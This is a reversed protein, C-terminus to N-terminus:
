YASMEKLYLPKLQDVDDVTKASSVLRLCAEESFEFTNRLGILEGDGEVIFQEQKQLEEIEQITLILPGQIYKKNKFIGVYARDSRADFLVMTNENSQVFLELSTITKITISSIASLTKAITMAIRVGTYSGPGVAIVMETIDQPKWGAEKVCDDLVSMALESQKKFAEKHFFSLVQNDEICAITMTKYSTDLFITKM